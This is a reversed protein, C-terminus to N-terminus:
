RAIIHWNGGSAAITYFQYQTALIKTTAGDITETGDGDITVNNSDSSIKKFTMVATNDVATPLTVIIAGGTSDLLYLLNGTTEAITLNGTVTGNLNIGQAFASEIRSMNVEIDKIRDYVEDEDIDWVREGEGDQNILVYNAIIGVWEGEWTDFRPNFTVGNMIWTYSDFSLSKLAHYDGDDQWIGRIVPVFNVYYGCIQTALVQPLDGTNATWGVSWVAPQVWNSGNFTQVGGVDNNTGNYFLITKELIGSNNDRGSGGNNTASYYNKQEWEIPEAANYAQSITINCKFDIATGTGSPFAYATVSNVLVGFETTGAPPTPLELEYKWTAPIKGNVDPFVTKITGWYTAPHNTWAGLANDWHYYATPNLAYYGMEVRFHTYITTSSETEVIVKFKIPNDDNIATTVLSQSTTNFASKQVFAVNRRTFGIEAKRLPPQYTQVPRSQWQRYDAQSITTGHTFAGGGSTWAGASDYLVYNFTASDYNNPQYIVYRGNSLIMRAGFTHLVETLAQKCSIYENPKFDAFPDYNSVFAAERMRVRSLPSSSTLNMNANTHELCDWYMVSNVNVYTSAYYAELGTKALCDAILEIPTIYGSTFMSSEVDYGEILNLADKAVIECIYKGEIASRTFQMQDGLVRGVWWLAGNKLIQLAFKNEAQTAIDKFYTETVGDQLLFYASVTSGRLPNEFVNDGEGDYKLEFGSDALVMETSGTGVNAAGDWLEVTYEDNNFSKFIGHYKRSM